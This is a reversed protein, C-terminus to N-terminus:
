HYYPKLKEIGVHLAHSPLAFVVLEAGSIM